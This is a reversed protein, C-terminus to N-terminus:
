LHAAVKWRVLFELECTESTISKILQGKAVGAPRPLRRRHLPTVRAQWGSGTLCPSLATGRRGAERLGDSLCSGVTMARPVNPLAAGSSGVLRLRAHSSFLVFPRSLAPREAGM